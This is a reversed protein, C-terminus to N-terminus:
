FFCMTDHMNLESVIVADAFMKVVHEEIPDFTKVDLLHALRSMNAIDLDPQSHYVAKSVIHSWCPCHIVLLKQLVNAECTLYRAMLVNSSAGDATVFLFKWPGDNPAFKQLKLDGLKIGGLLGLATKDELRSLVPMIKRLSGDNKFLTLCRVSVSLSSMINSGICIKMTTEDHKLSLGIANSIEEDYIGAAVIRLYRYIKWRFSEVTAEGVNHSVSSVISAIPARAGAASRAFGVSVMWRLMEDNYQEMRRCSAGLGEYLLLKMRDSCIHEPTSQAERARRAEMRKRSQENKWLKEYDAKPRGRPLEVQAPEIPPVNVIDHHVQSKPTNGNTEEAIEVGSHVIDNEDDDTIDTGVIPPNEEVILPIADQGPLDNNHAYDIHHENSDNNRPVDYFRSLDFGSSPDVFVPSSSIPPLDRLRDFDIDTGSVISPGSVHFSVNPVDSCDQANPLSEADSLNDLYSLDIQRVVHAPDTTEAADNLANNGEDESSSLVIAERIM